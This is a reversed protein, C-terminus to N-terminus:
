PHRMCIFRGTWANDHEERHCGYSTDDQCCKISSSCEGGLPACAEEAPAEGVPVQDGGGGGSYGYVHPGLVMLSAYQPVPMERDAVVFAGPQSAVFTGKSELKIRGQWDHVEVTVAYSGPKVKFVDSKGAAVKGWRRGTDQAGEPAIFVEVDHSSRNQVRLPVNGAYQKQYNPQCSLGLAAIVVWVFRM